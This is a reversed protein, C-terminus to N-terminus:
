NLRLLFFSVFCFAARNWTHVSVVNYYHPMLTEANQMSLRFCHFSHCTFYFGFLNELPCVEFLITLLLFIHGSCGVSLYIDLIVLAFFSLSVEFNWQLSPYNQFICLGFVRCLPFVHCSVFFVRVRCFRSVPHMQESLVLLCARTKEFCPAFPCFFSIISSRKSTSAFVNFWHCSPLVAAKM